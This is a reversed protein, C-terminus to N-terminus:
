IDGGFGQVLREQRGHMGCARDMMSKIQDGMYYKTPLLSLRVQRQTNPIAQHHSVLFALVHLLFLIIYVCKHNINQVEERNNCLNETAHFMDCGM